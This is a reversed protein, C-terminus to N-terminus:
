ANYADVIGYIWLGFYAIAPLILFATFFCFACGFFVFLAKAVDGKVLQGLGPVLLSLLAEIPYRVPAEIEKTM